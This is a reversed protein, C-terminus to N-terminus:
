SRLAEGIREVIESLVPAPTAFNLRAHGEGGQGFPAGATLAVRGKELLFQAPDDLAHASFDLWALYTAEPPVHGVEPLESVLQGLLHRNAELRFLVEDLWERSEAYAAANAILGFTGVGVKDPTFYQEWIDRDEDNTLVVHACKLGPLNWAKSASTVTVVMEPDFMAAVTHSAGALTLPAHVEDTIVRVERARAIELVDEIEEGSFSRGTPNWPNCLVISGAGGALAKEI